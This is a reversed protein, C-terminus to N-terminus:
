KAISLATMYDQIDCRMDLANLQRTSKMYFDQASDYNGLIMAVNGCIVKKENENSFSKITLVMSLNKALQFAQLALDLELYELAKRGLQDYLMPNNM